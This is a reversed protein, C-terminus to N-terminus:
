RRRPSEVAAGALAAAPGIGRALREHLAITLGVTAQDPIAMVPAIVSRVGLRLLAATTGLLEDGARVESRGASCAPLVAVTPARDLAELDFVTLAGDALLLSSFQPSDARFSGHAALHVLDTRGMADLVAESGAAAGRLVTAHPWHRAISRVERDAGPLEPGAVLLPPTTRLGSRSVPAPSAWLAASPAVTVTRGVLGPLVAWAIGHGAGTPVLVM